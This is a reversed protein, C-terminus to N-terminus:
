KQNGPQKQSVYWSSPNVEWDKTCQIINGLNEYYPSSNISWVRYIAWTPDIKACSRETEPLWFGDDLSKERTTTKVEIHIPDGNEKYSLIDYGISSSEMSVLKVMEALDDRSSDKLKKREAEMIFQEGMLGIREKEAARKQRRELEKKYDVTSIEPEENHLNEILGSVVYIYSQIHIANLQGYISLKEKLHDAMNLLVLYRKWEVKGSFEENIGYYNMLKQFRGPLVPFYLIPNLLFCLYALFTWKCGLRNERLYEAFRDFRKGLSDLNSDGGLFFEYLENELDHIQHETEVLYLAGYSNGKSGYQHVMLNSSISPACANKAAELIKGTSKRWGNWRQLSLAKRGEDYATHKYAIEDKYLVPHDFSTFPIGNSNRQMNSVFKTHAVSFSTENIELTM